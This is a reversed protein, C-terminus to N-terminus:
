AEETCCIGMYIHIELLILVCIIIETNLMYQKNVSNAFAKQLMPVYICMHWFKSGCAGLYDGAM